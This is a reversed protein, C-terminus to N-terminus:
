DFPLRSKQQHSKSFKRQRIYVVKQVKAITKQKDDLIDVSFEQFVAKGEAAKQKILNVEEPTIHMRASVKSKAPRIFDIHASKDWVVYDSGLQYMLMLMFFPDTMSYLSGGFQTGVVNKNLTTLDMEVICIAQTLDLTQVRIGAGVYPPYTNIRLKTVFPMISPLVRKKVKHILPSLPTKKLLTQSTQSLKEFLTDFYSQSM